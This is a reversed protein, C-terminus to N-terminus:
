WRLLSVDEVNVSERNRFLAIVIGLGVAVEAAAVVIVMLVFIHGSVDGSHRSFGVLALNVANLMLEISMLIVILNRRTLAGTAGIAFLLASLAIVHELPVPMLRDETQRPGGRGGDGRAAPALDGRLRPPLRHLARPRRRPLRRLGRAAGRRPRLEGAPAMLFEVLLVGVVAVGLIKAFTARERGFEEGRLNLLMVVFLFLVVIAGAYVMIQLAGVLHAELLVYVGGLSIMTLVLSMAGAVTNRLNLVMGLAGAVALAAFLYFFVAGATVAPAGRSPDARGDRLHERALAAPDGELLPGHGPRLADAAADLPDADPALDARRGERPVDGRPPDPLPRHRLGPRLGRVGRVIITEQSLWPIAWGGLFLTAVLAAIVLVEIFESMYFLGFRMGSYEIHYGAIIESEGEPPDFPPRKNEAMVCTLFLVFGLPQLFIGWTPLRIWALWGPLEDVFGFLELFGLVRFTTDQAAAMDTLRLTGFVMFLGVISLGMTVEYSIMQASARLSGLLSWNNNSAWGAIVAGYTAISGIAFIYLM